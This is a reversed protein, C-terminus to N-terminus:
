KTTVTVDDLYIWGSTYSSNTFSFRLQVTKGQYSTLDATVNAWTSNGTRPGSSLVTGLVTAGDASRVEVLSSGSGGSTPCTGNCYQQIWFSLATTGTTPVAVNQSLSNTGAYLGAQAAKVGSHGAGIAYPSGNSGAAVTWSTLGAEFGGNNFGNPSVTYAASPASEPSTGLSNTAKVTFTYNSGSTLGTVLAGTAPPSGLVTVPPLATGNLYPTVTYSTIAAAGYAPPTWQVTASSDNTWAVVSTPAAPASTTVAVDDM